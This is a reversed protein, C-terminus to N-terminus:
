DHMPAEGPAAESQRELRRRLLVTFVPTLMAVALVMAWMSRGDYSWGPCETCNSPCPQLALDPHIGCYENTTMSKCKAPESFRAAPDINPSWRTAEGIQAQEEASVIGDCFFGLSDQCESCQPVFSGLLMGGVVTGIFNFAVRPSHVMSLFLAQGHVPSLAALYSQSRPSWVVEGMSLLVIWLVSGLMNPFIVMFIPSIAFIVLGPVIVGFDSFGSLFASVLPPLITCAWLNISTVTGWMVEVGYIRTLFKPLLTEALQWQLAAFMTSVQFTLARYCDPNHVFGCLQHMVSLNRKKQVDIESLRPDEINDVFLSVFWASIQAFATLLLVFRLGSIQHTGLMYVSDKVQDAFMFGVAGAANVVSYSIAFAFDRESNSTLRVIATKTGSSVGSEFLPILFVLCLLFISSHTFYTMGLRTVFGLFSSWRCYSGIGVRDVIVSNGFSFLVSLMTFNGVAVAAQVDSYHYENSLLLPLIALSSYWKLSELCQVCLVLHLQGPAQCFGWMSERMSECLSQSRSQQNVLPTAEHPHRDSHHYWVWILLFFLLTAIAISITMVNAWSHTSELQVPLPKVAANSDRDDKQKVGTNKEMAEKEDKIAKHIEDSKKKQEDKKIKQEPTLDNNLSKMPPIHAEGALGVQQQMGDKKAKADAAETINPETGKTKQADGDKNAPTKEATPGSNSARHIHDASAREAISLGKPRLRHVPADITETPGDLVVNNHHNGDLFLKDRTQGVSVVKSSIPSEAVTLTLILLLRSIWIAM